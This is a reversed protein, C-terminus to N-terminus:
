EMPNTKGDQPRKERRDPRDRSLKDTVSKKFTKLNLYLEHLHPHKIQQGYSVLSSHSSNLRQFPYSGSTVM